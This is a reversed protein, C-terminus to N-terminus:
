SNKCKSQLYFQQIQEILLKELLNLLLREACIRPRNM